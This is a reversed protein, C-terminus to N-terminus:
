DLSHTVVLVISNHGPNRDYLGANSVHYVSLGVAM